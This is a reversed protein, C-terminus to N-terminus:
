SISKGPSTGEPNPTLHREEPPDDFVLPSAHHKYDSYQITNSSKSLAHISSSKGRVASNKKASSSSSSGTNSVSQKYRSTSANDSLYSNDDCEDFPNQSGSSNRSVCISDMDDFPNKATILPSEDFPNSGQQPKRGMSYHKSVPLSVDVPVIPKITATSSIIVPDTKGSSLEHDPKVEVAELVPPFHKFTPSTASYFIQSLHSVFEAKLAKNAIGDGDWVASINYTSRKAPPAPEPLAPSSSGSGITEPSQTAKGGVPVTTSSPMPNPATTVSSVVSSIVPIHTEEVPTLDNLLSLAQSTMILASETVLLLWNSDVNGHSVVNKM